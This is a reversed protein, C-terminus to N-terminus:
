VFSSIAPETKPLAQEQYFNTIHLSVAQYFDKPQAVLESKQPQTQKHDRASNPQQAIRIDRRNLAPRGRLPDRAINAVQTPKEAEKQQKEEQKQGGGQHKGLTRENLRAQIEPQEATREHQPTFPREEHSKVLEPTPVIPPRQQSDVRAADTAPNTTAIPVQPYNTVVLM